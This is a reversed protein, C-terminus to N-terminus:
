AVEEYLALDREQIPEIDEQKGLIMSVTLAEEKSQKVMAEKKPKKLSHSMRLAKLGEIHFPNTIYEGKGKENLIHEAIVRNRYIVTLKAPEEEQVAVEKGAYEYPVSYLNAKYSFHCDNFVRRYSITSTDYLRKGEIPILGEKKLRIKPKQKTTNHIRNNIKNLWELAKKNIQKLSIFEEGAFFNRKAYLVSNEVKGKTNPKYPRCLIPKFGYYGAFDMFKKNFESEKARLARKIVVSKLNDYLLERTYGRFYEFAHNHGKLFSILNARQFFEIYLTRSYGLIMFFCNLSIWKKQEQDYFQGFCGWDVQSQEGPLTEFRLVAKKKLEKKESKVFNALLVYKGEYGQKQIQEYLKAATIDYKELQAKIYPKYKDLKSPLTKRRYKPTATKKLNSAVTKRSIGLYRAIATKKMGQKYLNRMIVWEKQRVM